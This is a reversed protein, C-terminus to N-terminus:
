DLTRTPWHRRIVLIESCRKAPRKPQLYALKPTVERDLKPAVDRNLKPMFERDLDSALKL